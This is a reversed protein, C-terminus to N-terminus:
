AGALVVLSPLLLTARSWSDSLRGSPYQVLAYVGQLVTLAVGAQALSLSLDARIEPLLPPVAFRALQLAAWALATVALMRGTDGGVLREERSV